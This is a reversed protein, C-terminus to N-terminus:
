KMERLNALADIHNPDQKLVEEYLRRKETQEGTLAARLLLTNVNDQDLRSARAAQEKASDDDGCLWFVWGLDAAIDADDPRLEELRKYVPMSVEPHPMNKQAIGHLASVDTTRSLLLRLEEDEVGTEITKAALDKLRELLLSSNM